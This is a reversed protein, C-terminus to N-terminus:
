AEVGDIKEAEPIYIIGQIKMQKIEKREVAKGDVREVIFKTADLRLRPDEAHMALDFVQEVLKAARPKPDGEDSGRIYTELMSSLLAGNQKRVDEGVAAASTGAKTEPPDVGAESGPDYLAVACKRSLNRQPSVRRSVGTLKDGVKSVSV